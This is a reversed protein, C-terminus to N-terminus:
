PTGTTVPEYLNEINYGIRPHEINNYVDVPVPLSCHSM